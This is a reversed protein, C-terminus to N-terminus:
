FWRVTFIPWILAAQGPPHGMLCNAYALQLGLKAVISVHRAAAAPSIVLEDAIERNSLGQAILRVIEHERPTLPTRGRHASRGHEHHTL